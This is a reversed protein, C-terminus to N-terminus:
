YLRNMTAAEKSMAIRAKEGTGQYLEALAPRPVRRLDAYISPSLGGLSSHPRLTNYDRRWDEILHRAPSTSPNRWIRMRFAWCTATSRGLAVSGSTPGVWRLGRLFPVEGM